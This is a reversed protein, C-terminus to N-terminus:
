NATVEVTIVDSYTGGAESGTLNGITFEIPFRNGTAPTTGTGRIAEAAIGSALDIEAGDLTVTYNITDPITPAREHIMRQRNESQMTVRYGNNSRVVVDFGRQEGSVLTGFDIVQVTNNIDFPAGSEVLSVDVSSEAHAQFTVTRSDELTNIGLILGSYLSLTLSPDSYPTASAPVIQLPDITWAFSHNATQNLGGLVALSGTITEGQTATPLAKLISGKSANIYANYNLTHVDHMLKRQSFNGSQGASLTIFYDCSPASVTGQVRFNVTQMYETPDFVAYGGSGGQFTIVSPVNALSLAVCAAMVPSAHFFMILAAFIHSLPRM